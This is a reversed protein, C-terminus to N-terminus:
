LWVRDKHCEGIWCPAINQVDQACTWPPRALDCLVERRRPRGDRPVQGYQSVGLQYGGLPVARANQIFEIGGHELVGYLVEEVPDIGSTGIALTLRLHSGGARM